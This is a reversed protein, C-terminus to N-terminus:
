RRSVGPRPLRQRIRVHPADGVNARLHAPLRGHVSSSAGGDGQVLVRAEDCARIFRVISRADPFADGTVGGTRIKAKLRADRAGRRTTPPGLARAARRFIGLRADGGAARAVDDVSAVKAEVCDIAAPVAHSANFRRVRAADASRDAGAIAALRWDPTDKSVSEVLADCFEDLRAVPVVFRGLMWADDSARYEAYNRVAAPMDLEAPPFLGAYDVIGALLARLATVAATKKPDERDHRSLEAGRVSMSFACIKRRTTRTTRTSITTRRDRHGGPIRRLADIWIHGREIVAEANPTARTTSSGRRTEMSRLTSARATSNFIFLFTSAAEDGRRRLSSRSGPM